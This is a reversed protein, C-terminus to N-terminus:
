VYDFHHYLGCMLCRQEAGNGSRTLVQVSDGKVIPLSDIFATFEAPDSIDGMLANAICTVRKTTDDVVPTVEKNSAGGSSAQPVQPLPKGAKTIAEQMKSVTQGKLSTTGPVADCYARMLQVFAWPGDQASKPRPIKSNLGLCERATKAKCIRSPCFKCITTTVSIQDPNSPLGMQAARSILHEVFKHPDKLMPDEDSIRDSLWSRLHSIKGTDTDPFSKFLAHYFGAPHLETNGTISLWDILLDSLHQGFQEQSANSSLKANLVKALLATQTSVSQKDTFNLAWQLFSPGNRYDGMVFTAKIMALDKKEYIGTLDVSARVIHYLATAERWWEQTVAAHVAELINQPVNNLQAAIEMETPPSYERTITTLNRAALMDNMEDFWADTYGKRPVLKKSTGTIGSFNNSTVNTSQRPDYLPFAVMDSAVTLDDLNLCEASLLDIFSDHDTM